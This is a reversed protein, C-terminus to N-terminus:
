QTVELISDPLSDYSSTVKPPVPKGGPCIGSKRLWCGTQLVGSGWPIPEPEEWKGTSCVAKFGSGASEAAMAPLKDELLSSSSTPQLDGAGRGKARSHGPGDEAAGDPFTRDGSLRLATEKELSTPVTSGSPWQSATSKCTAEDELGLGGGPGLSFPSAPFTRVGCIWSSAILCRTLLLRLPWACLLGM